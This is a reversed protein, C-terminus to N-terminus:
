EPEATSEPIVVLMMSSMIAKKWTSHSSDRLFVGTGKVVIVIIALRNSDHHWTVNVNEYTRTCGGCRARVSPKGGAYLAVGDEGLETTLVDQWWFVTTM